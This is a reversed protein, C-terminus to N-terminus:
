HDLWLVDSACFAHRAVIHMFVHYLGRFPRLIQPELRGVTDIATPLFQSPRINPNIGINSPNWVHNKGCCERGV